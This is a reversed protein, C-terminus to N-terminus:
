WMILRSLYPRTERIIPYKDNALKNYLYCSGHTSGLFNVRSVLLKNGDGNISQDRSRAPLCSIHLLTILILSLETYKKRDLSIDGNYKSYLIGHKYRSYETVTSLLRWGMISSRMIWRTIWSKKM